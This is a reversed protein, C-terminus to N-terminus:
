FDGFFGSIDEVTLNYNGIRNNSNDFVQLTGIQDIESEVEQIFDEEDTITFSQRENIDIILIFKGARGNVGDITLAYGFQIKSRYSVDVAQENGSASFDVAAIFHAKSGKRVIYGTSADTINKLVNLRFETEFDYEVSEFGEAFEGEAEGDLQVYGGPDREDTIVLSFQGKGGDTTETIDSDWTVAQPAAMTFTPTMFSTMMAASQAELESYMEEGIKEAVQGLPEAMALGADALSELAATKNTAPSSAFSPLDAADFSDLKPGFLNCGSIVTLIIAFSLIPVLNKKNM